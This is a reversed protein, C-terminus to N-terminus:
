QSTGSETCRGIKPAQRRHVLILSALTSLLDADSRGPQQCTNPSLGTASCSGSTQFLLCVVCLLSFFPFLLLTFQHGVRTKWAKVTASGNRRRATPSVEVVQRQPYSSHAGDCHARRQLDKCQCAAETNRINSCTVSSPEVRRHQSTSLSPPTKYRNDTWGANM